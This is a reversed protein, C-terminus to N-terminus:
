RLLVEESVRHRRYWENVFRERSQGQPRADTAALEHVASNVLVQQIEIRVFLRKILAELDSNRDLQAALVAYVDNRM